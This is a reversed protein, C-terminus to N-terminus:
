QGTLALSEKSHAARRAPKKAELYSPFPSLLEEPLCSVTQLDRPHNHGGRGGGGWRVGRRRRAHTCRVRHHCLTRNWTDHPRNRAHVPGPRRADARSKIWPTEHLWLPRISAHSPPHSSFRKCAHRLNRPRDIAHSHRTIAPPYSVCNKRISLHIM